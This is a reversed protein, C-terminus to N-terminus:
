LGGGLEGVVQLWFVPKGSERAAATADELTRNWRVRAQLEQIRLEAVRGTLDDAFGQGIWLGLGAMLVLLSRRIM